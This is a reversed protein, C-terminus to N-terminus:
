QGMTDQDILVPTPNAVLRRRILLDTLSEILPMHGSAPADRSPDDKVTPV